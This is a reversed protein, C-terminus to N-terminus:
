VEHEDHTPDSGYPYVLRAERGSPGEVVRRDFWRHMFLPHICVQDRDEVPRLETAYTYAFEGVVYRDSPQDRTVIGLSGISLCADLFGEFDIGVRAVSARNFTRHLRSVSEVPAAHNKIAALGQRIAPHDYSYTTLVGDVM